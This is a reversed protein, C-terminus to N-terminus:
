RGDEGRRRGSGEGGAFVSVLMKIMRNQLTATTSQKCLVVQSLRTTHREHVRQWTGADTGAKAFAPVSAIIWSILGYMWM